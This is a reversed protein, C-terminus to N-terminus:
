EGFANGQKSLMFRRITEAEAEFQHKEYWNLQESDMIGSIYDNPEDGFLICFSPKQPNYGLLYKDGKSDTFEGLSICTPFNVKM